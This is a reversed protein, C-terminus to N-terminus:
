NNSREEGTIPIFTDRFLFLLISWHFPIFHRKINFILSSVTFQGNNLNMGNLGANFELSQRM